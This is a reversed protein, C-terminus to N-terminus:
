QRRGIEAKRFVRSASAAAGGAAAGDGDALRQLAIDIDPEAQEPLKGRDVPNFQAGLDAAEQGLDMELVALDDTLAVQQEHDIGARVFYPEGLRFGRQLGRCARM